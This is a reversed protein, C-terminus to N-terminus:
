CEREAANADSLAAALRESLNDLEPSRWAHKAVIASATAITDRAEDREAEAADREATLTSITAETSRAAALLRSCEAEADFLEDNKKSIAKVLEAVAAEAADARAKEAAFAESVAAIRAHSANAVHVMVGWTQPDYKAQEALKASAELEALYQAGPHSAAERLKAYKDTM